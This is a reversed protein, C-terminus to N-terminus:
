ANFWNMKECDRGELDEERKKFIEWQFEWEHNIYKISVDFNTLLKKELEFGKDYIRLFDELLNFESAPHSLEAMAVVYITLPLVDDM